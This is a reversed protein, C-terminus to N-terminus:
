TKLCSAYEDRYGNEVDRNIETMEEDIKIPFQQVRQKDMGSDKLLQAVMAKQQALAWTRRHTQRHFDFKFSFSALYIVLHFKASLTKASHQTTFIFSIPEHVRKGGM